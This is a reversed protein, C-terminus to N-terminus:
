KSIKKFQFAQNVHFQIYQLGILKVLHKAEVKIKYAKKMKQFLKFDLIMM